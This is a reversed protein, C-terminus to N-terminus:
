PSVATRSGPLARASLSRQAGDRYRPANSSAARLSPPVTTLESLTMAAAALWLAAVAAPRSWFKLAEV